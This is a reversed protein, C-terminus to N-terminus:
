QLQAEQAAYAEVESQARALEDDARDLEGVLKRAEDVPLQDDNVREVDVRVVEGGQAEVRITAPVTLENLLPLEVRETGKVAVSASRTVRARDSYVTVATVPAEAAGALVLALLATVAVPDAEVGQAAEGLLHVLREVELQAARHH